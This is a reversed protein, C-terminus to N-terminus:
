VSCCSRVRRKNTGGAKEKKKHMKNDLHEEWQDPGNLWMECPECYRIEPEPELEPQRTTQPDLGHSGGPSTPPKVCSTDATLMRSATPSQVCSSDADLVRSPNLSQTGSNDALPESM